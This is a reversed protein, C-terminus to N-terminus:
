SHLWVLQHGRNGHLWVLQDRRNSHLWVLQDCRNGHLWVLQDCRNGHLWVLQDRRNGHLWVLQDRWKSHLWVLQDYWKSHLRSVIVQQTHAFHKSFIEDHSRSSKRISWTVTTQLCVVRWAHTCTCLVSAQVSSNCRHVHPACQLACSKHTNHACVVDHGFQFVFMPMVNSVDLLTFILFHNPVCHKKKKQLKLM